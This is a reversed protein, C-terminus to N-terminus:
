KRKKNNKHLMDTEIVILNWVEENVFLSFFDFPTADSPLDHSVGVKVENKSVLDEFTQTVKKEIPMTKSSFHSTVSDRAKKSAVRKRKVPPKAEPLDDSDLDSTNVSSVSSCSVDGDGKYRRLFDSNRVIIDLDVDSEDDKVERAIEFGHFSTDSDSDEFFRRYFLDNEEGSYDAM